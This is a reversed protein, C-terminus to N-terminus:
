RDPHEIIAIVAFCFAGAILCLVVYVTCAIWVWISM